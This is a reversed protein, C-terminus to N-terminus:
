EGEPSVRRVSVAQAGKEGQEIGFRVIDGANLSKYGDSEIASYHCFVDVGGDYGLFGYGKVNNFWRVEGTIQSM